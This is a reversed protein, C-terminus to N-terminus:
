RSYSWHKTVLLCYWAPFQKENDNNILSNKKKKKNGIVTVSSPNEGNDIVM